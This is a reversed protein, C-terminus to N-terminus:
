WENEMEPENDSPCERPRQPVDILLARMSVFFVITGFQGQTSFPEPMTVYYCTETVIQLLIFFISQYGNQNMGQSLWYETV